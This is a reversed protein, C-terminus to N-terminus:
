VISSIRVIGILWTAVSNSTTFSASSASANRSTSNHRALCLMAGLISSQEISFHREIKRVKRFWSIMTEFTFSMVSRLCASVAIRCAISAASAAVFAFDFKRAFMLWSIRVGIFAMM